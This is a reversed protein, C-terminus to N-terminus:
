CLRALRETLLRFIGDEDADTLWQVHLARGHDARFEVATAGLTLASSTEVDVAAPRGVFLRPQLLWAITCPDHLATAVGHAANPTLHNAYDLLEAAFAGVTGGLARIAAVREPGARVQHTVDLGCMVVPCGSRLVIAAAHPDAHINYEASATINGGANRAGGMIVLEHIRPVIDPALRMAMAINTMPGTIAITVSGAAHHRLTDVIYPVAHGSALPARPEFIRANGLGSEGHFHGADIPERLLPRDCGAHIPVEERRALERVIRANRATHQPGVNGAVTTIGLLELESPSAFALLLAIADDIGPDCDILLHRTMLAGYAV